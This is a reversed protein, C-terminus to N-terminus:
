EEDSSDDNLEVSRSEVFDLSGDLLQGEAARMAGLLFFVSGRTPDIHLATLVSDDHQEAVLALALIEGNKARRLVDTLVKVLHERQDLYEVKGM